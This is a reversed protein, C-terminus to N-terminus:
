VKKRKLKSVLISIFILILMVPYTVMRPWGDEELVKSTDRATYHSTKFMYCLM